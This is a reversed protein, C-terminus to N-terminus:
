PEGLLLVVVRRRGRWEGDPLSPSATPGAMALQHSGQGGASRVRLRGDEDSEVTVRVFHVKGDPRRPLPEAAM